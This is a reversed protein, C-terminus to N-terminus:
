LTRGSHDANNRIIQPDLLDHLMIPKHVCSPISFLLFVQTSLLERVDHQVFALPFMVYVLACKQVINIEM